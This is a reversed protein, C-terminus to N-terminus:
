NLDISLPCLSTSSVNRVVESGMCNYSCIKNTGSIRENSKFCQIKSSNSNTGSTSGLTESVSKGSLLDESINGLDDWVSPDIKKKPTGTVNSIVKNQTNGSTNKLYLDKVCDAFKETGENYGIDKCMTKFTDLSQKTSKTKNAVNGTNGTAIQIAGDLTPVWAKLTGNGLDWKNASCYEDHSPGVRKQKSIVNEFVLFIDQSGKSYIIEMQTEPYYKYGCGGTWPDNAAGGSLFEKKVQAKTAGVKINGSKQGSYVIEQTSSCASLFLGLFVILLLKKIM